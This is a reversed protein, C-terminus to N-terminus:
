PYIDKNSVCWQNRRSIKPASGGLLNKTGTMATSGPDKIQGQSEPPLKRKAEIEARKQAIWDEQATMQAGRGPGQPRRQNSM